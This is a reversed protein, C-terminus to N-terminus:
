ILHPLLERGLVRHRRQVRRQQALADHVQARLELSDERLLPETGRIIVPSKKDPISRMVAKVADTTGSRKRSSLSSPCFYCNNNCRGGPLDLIYAM